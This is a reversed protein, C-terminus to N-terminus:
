SPENEIFTVLREDALYVEQGGQTVLIAGCSDFMVKQGITVREALLNTGYITGFRFRTSASPYDPTNMPIVGNISQPEIFVSVMPYLLSNYVSFAM